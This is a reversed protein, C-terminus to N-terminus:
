AEDYPNKGQRILLRIPVGPLDFAERLGNVLFRQYSDPLGAKSNVFLTFTPPRSKTQTMYKVKLRRGAVLPPTHRSLMEELWRNIQATPVRKNWIDYQKLCADIVKGTNKSREATVTVIPLGKFQPLVKGLQYRVEELLADREDAPVLDWKNLALVCARGEDAIMAGIQNDQKELAQTADLMLVVVHAYQLARRSDNVAIIELKDQMVKSKRRMGATDVLQLKRGAHEFPIAIADRTIGAEPGTLVRDEKLLANIFTSKGVNPRGMVAISVPADPAAEDEAGDEEEEASMNCAEVLADYLGGLGEGHEASIAIPDGLGLSYADILGDVGRRGEAKNVLLIVKKGSQRVLEAFHRDSPLLGSRGDIMLLIVDAEKLGEMTQATMRGALTEAEAEELGATDTLTFAFGGIDAEGMRRDRTVGPQDAVLAHRTRTLLNYLTSKGVNPRGIIAVVPKEKQM